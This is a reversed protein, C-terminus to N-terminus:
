AKGVERCLRKELKHAEREIKFSHPAPAAQPADAAPTDTDPTWTTM